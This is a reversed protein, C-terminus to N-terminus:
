AAGASRSPATRAGKREILANTALTTGHVVARVQAAPVDVEGLLAGIGSEVGQAPDKPTTLVKGVRLAGTSEDVVVLDTFTGGVDVGLREPM